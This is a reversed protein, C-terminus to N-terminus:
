LYIWSYSIILIVFIWVLCQMFVVLFVQFLSFTQSLWSSPVPLLFQVKYNEIDKKWFFPSQYNM